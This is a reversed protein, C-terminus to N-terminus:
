SIHTSYISCSTSKVMGAHKSNNKSNFTIYYSLINKLWIETWHSADEQNVDAQCQCKLLATERLVLVTVQLRDQGM